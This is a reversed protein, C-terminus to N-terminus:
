LEIRLGDYGLRVYFPLQSLERDVERHLGIRHSMLTFYTRERRIREM